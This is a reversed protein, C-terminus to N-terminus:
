QRDESDKLDQLQCVNGAYAAVLGLAEDAVDLGKFQIDSLGHFMHQRM